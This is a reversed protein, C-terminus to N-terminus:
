GLTFKRIDNETLTRQIDTHSIMPFLPKTSNKEDEKDPISFGIYEVRKKTRHRLWDIAPILDSDSSVLIATDYQNDIAGSILDTAIKVDIGKERTREIHIKDIGARKLTKYELTRNDIKVEEMRTRLKSTKIQWNSKKLLNFLKTQRSMASKSYPDGEKERITGTYFRKGLPVIDRGAALFIAFNDFNFDPEQLNLKKLVLHYFNSGDVHICVREMSM